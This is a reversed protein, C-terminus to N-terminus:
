LSTLLTPSILNKNIFPPVNKMPEGFPNPYKVSCGYWLTVTSENQIPFYSIVWFCYPFIIPLFGLEKLPACLGTSCTFYVEGDQNIALSLTDFPLKQAVVSVDGEPTIRLLRFDPHREPGVVFIDGSPHIFVDDESTADETDINAILSVEYDPNVRYLGRHVPGTFYNDEFTALVILDGQQDFVLDAM